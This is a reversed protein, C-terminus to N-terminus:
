RQLQERSNSQLVQLTRSSPEHEDYGAGIVDDHHDIISFIDSQRLLRGDEPGSSLARVGHVRKVRRRRHNVIDWTLRRLYNSEYPTRNNSQFNNRREQTVYRPM